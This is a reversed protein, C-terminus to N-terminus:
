ELKANVIDVPYSRHGRKIRYVSFDNVDLTFVSKIKMSEAIAILSAFFVSPSKASTKRASDRREILGTKIAESISVGTREMIEALASEAEDDLRVSRIGM